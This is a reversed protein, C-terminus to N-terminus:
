GVIKLCKQLQYLLIDAITSECRRSCISVSPGVGGVQSASSQKKENSDGPRAEGSNGGRCFGFDRNTGQFLKGHARRHLGIEASDSALSM